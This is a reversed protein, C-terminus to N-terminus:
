KSEEKEINLKILEAADLVANAAGCLLAYVEASTGTITRELDDTTKWDPLMSNIVKNMVYDIVVTCTQSSTDYHAVTRGSNDKIEKIM